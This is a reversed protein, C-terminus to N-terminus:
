LAHRRRDRMSTRIILAKVKISRESQSKPTKGNNIHGTAMLRHRIGVAVDPHDEIALNIVKGFEAALEFATAIVEAGVGVRFDDDIDILMPTRLNEIM